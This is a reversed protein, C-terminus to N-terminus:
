RELSAAARAISEIEDWKGAEMLAQDVVWSGGVCLVNSLALYDQANKPNVGGTPCFKINSFVSAIAGLAKVGGNAEAPFFKLTEFGKEALSMVESVSAVGPLLPMGQEICADVLTDTAGPSVGFTAGAAKAAAVDAPTRLTGAGVQGGPVKAMEAIADLACDTRLTVELSPLGGAVLAEALPRAYELKKIVIVPVVPAVMCVARAEENMPM